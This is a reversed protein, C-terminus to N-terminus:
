RKRKEDRRELEAGLILTAELTFDGAALRSRLDQERLCEFRVVEGDRNVPTVGPALPRASSPSASTWTAKPSRGACSFTPPGACRSRLQDLRGTRGRRGNRAGADLPDIRRGGGPRGDLHGLPGSRDGQRLRAAAGSRVTRPAAASTCPSTAIGLVPRRQAGGGRPTRGDRGVVPLLEDRWRSALGEDNCDPSPALSAEFPPVITRRRRGEGIPM